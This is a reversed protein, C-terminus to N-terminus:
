PCAAARFVLGKTFDLKSRDSFLMTGNKDEAPGFGEVWNGGKQLFAVERTSEVGESMFKYSAFLTDGHIKGDIKGRNRDKEFLRYELDGTIMSDSKVEIHLFASDKETTYAYCESGPQEDSQVVKTSESEKKVCSALICGAAILIQIQKKIM